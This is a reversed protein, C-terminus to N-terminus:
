ASIGREMIDMFIKMMEELDGLDRLSDQETSISAANFLDTLGKFGAFILMALTKPDLKSVISRDQIGIQAARVVYTLADNELTKCVMASPVTELKGDLIVRRYTHLTLMFLPNEHVFRLYIAGFEKLIDLGSLSLALAQSFQSNLLQSYRASISLILDTKSDFELYLAGKSIGAKRAIDDMSVSEMGQELLLQLAADLIGTKRITSKTVTHM